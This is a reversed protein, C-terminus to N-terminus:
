FEEVPQTLDVPESRVPKYNEALFVGENGCHAVLNEQEVGVTSLALWETDLESAPDGPNPQPLEVRFMDSDLSAVAADINEALRATETGKYDESVADALSSHSDIADAVNSRTDDLGDTFLYADLASFLQESENFVAVCAHGEASLGQWESDINVSVGTATLMLSGGLFATALLAGKRNSLRQKFNM